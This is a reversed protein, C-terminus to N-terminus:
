VKKRRDRPEILDCSERMKVALGLYAMAYVPVDDRWRSVTSVDLGLRRSLEAKSWGLYSLAGEFGM